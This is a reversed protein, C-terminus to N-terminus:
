RAAALIADVDLHKELAEAIEDLAEEVAARHDVGGGEVGLGALFRARFLDAGFLGHLYTGFVRGDASSAGDAAGDIEIPPRAADPGTTRGIHIEYGELPTAFALSRASVNRVVKEPEMVTEVDLLGLGEAERASGEISGPDRVVRGLMQYGGCLGVVHGGRRRHDALDRDWGNARFAALDGITSKSGPIVVLAADAPLREGPRVFSVEVDPEAVLPDLDDFNSIRPLM